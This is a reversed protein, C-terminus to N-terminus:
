QLILFFFYNRFSEPCWCQVAGWLLSHLIKSNHLETKFVPTVFCLFFLALLSIICHVCKLFFREAQSRLCVRHERVTLCDIIQNSLEAVPQNVCCMHWLGCHWRFLARKSSIFAVGRMCTREDEWTKKKKDCHSEEDHRLKQAYM